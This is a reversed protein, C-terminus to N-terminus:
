LLHFIQTPLILTIPALLKLIGIQSDIDGLTTSNNVDYVGTQITVSNGVALAATVSAVDVYQTGTTPQYSSGSVSSSPRGSQATRITINSPDLLWSGAKGLVASADVIGNAKYIKMVPPRWRDEMVEKVARKLVPDRWLIGYLQKVM